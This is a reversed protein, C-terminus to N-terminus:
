LRLRLEFVRLCLKFSRNRVITVLKVFCDPLEFLTRLALHLLVLCHALILLLLNFRICTQVLLIPSPGKDLCYRKETGINSLELFLNSFIFLYDLLSQILNLLCKCCVLGLQLWHWLGSRIRLWQSRSENSSIDKNRCRTHWAFATVIGTWNLWREIVGNHCHMFHLVLGRVTSKLKFSQVSNNSSMVWLRAIYEVFQSKVRGVRLDALDDHNTTNIM